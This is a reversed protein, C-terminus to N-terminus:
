HAPARKFGRMVWAAALALAEIGFFALLPVGLAIALLLPRINLAVVRPPPDDPYLAEPLVPPAMPRQLRVVRSDPLTAQDGTVVTGVPLTMEALADVRHVAIDVALLCAAAVLAASGLALALRSLGRSPM